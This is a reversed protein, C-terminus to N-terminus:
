QPAGKVPGEPISMDPDVDFQNSNKGYMSRELEFTNSGELADVPYGKPVEVEPLIPAYKDDDIFETPEPHEPGILSSQHQMQSETLLLGSEDPTKFPEYTYLHNYISMLIIATFGGLLIHTHSCLILLAILIGRGLYSKFIFNPFNVCGCYTVIAFLTFIVILKINVIEKIDM